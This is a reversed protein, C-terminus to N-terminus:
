EYSLRWMGFAYLLVAILAVAGAKPAIDVFTSGQMVDLFGDLTWYTPSIVQLPKLWGPLQDVPIM